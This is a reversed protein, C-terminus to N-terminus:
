STHSTNGVKYNSINALRTNYRRRLAPILTFKTTDVHFHTHLYPSPRILSIPRSMCQVYINEHISKQFNVIERPNIKANKINNGRHLMVFTIKVIYMNEHFNSLCSNHSFIYLAFIDVNM